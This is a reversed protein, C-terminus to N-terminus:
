ELQDLQGIAHMTEGDGGLVYLADAVVATADWRAHHMEPLEEWSGTAPDFREASQLVKHARHPTWIKSWSTRLKVLTKGSRSLFSM